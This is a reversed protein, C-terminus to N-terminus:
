HRVARRRARLMLGGTAAALILATGSLVLVRGDPGMEGGGGTAAGGGPTHTVQTTKHPKATVTTYVTRTPRPSTPTASPSTNTPTPSTSTSTTAAPSVTITAAAADAETTTKVTCTYWATPTSGAATPGVKLIFQGPKVAFTGTATPTVTVLITPIPMPAQATVSAVPVSSATASKTLPQAAIPAGTFTLQGDMVVQETTAIGSTALLSPATAPQSIKWTVVAPGNPTPATVPGALDVGFKVDTTGCTYTVPKPELLAAAAPFGGLLVGASVVGAAAAKKAIRRRAKSKLM